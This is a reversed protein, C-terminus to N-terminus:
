TELNDLIRLVEAEELDYWNEYANAVAFIRLRSVDPCVIRDVQNELRRHAALSATPVAVVIEGANRNRVSKVAAEMTFGSALGDDVLIVVRGDLSPLIARDGFYAQRSRISELAREKQTQVDAENLGIREMLAHNLLLFGDSTVAGFGAEPNDPIQLKRVLMLYLDAGLEEAIVAGVPVGGNPVALILPSRSRIDELKAALVAGAHERDRYRPEPAEFFPAM